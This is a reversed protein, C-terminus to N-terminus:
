SVCRTRQYQYLSVPKLDIVPTPNVAFHWDNQGTIVSCDFVYKGWTSAFRDEYFGSKTPCAMLADRAELRRMLAKPANGDIAIELQARMREAGYVFISTAKGNRDVLMMGPATARLYYEVAGIQKSLEDIRQVVVPDRLFSADGARTLPEIVATRNAFYSQQLRGVELPLRESLRADQKVLYLDILGENFASVATADGAKGTLLIKKVPLGKIHRCFDIGTMAPMAYDVIVVSVLSFRELRCAIRVISSTEFRFLTEGDEDLGDPLAALPSHTSSAHTILTAAQSRLSDIALGPNSQVACLLTDGFRHSFSELFRKDDDVVLCTTPHYYPLM